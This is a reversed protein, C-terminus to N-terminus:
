RAPPEPIQVNYQISSRADDLTTQYVFIYDCWNKRIKLDTNKICSAAVPAHGAASFATSTPWEAPPYKASIQFQYNRGLNDAFTILCSSVPRTVGVPVAFSAFNPNTTTNPTKACCGYKTFFIGNSLSKYAYNFNVNPTAHDPNPLNQPGGVAIVLGTGDTQMNGVADDVSYAYTYPANIFSPGHILAVYPHFVGYNGNLVDVWYQLM